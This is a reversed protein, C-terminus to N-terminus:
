PLGDDGCRVIHAGQSLLQRLFKGAGSEVKQGGVHDRLNEIESKRSGDVHLDFARVRFAVAGHRVYHQPLDRWTGPM